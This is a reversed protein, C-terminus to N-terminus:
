SRWSSVTAKGGSERYQTRHRSSSGQVVGVNGCVADAEMAEGGAFTRENQEDVAERFKRVGPFFLEAFESFVVEDNGRIKAAEVQRVLGGSEVGVADGNQEFINACEGVMKAVAFFENQNGMVPAARKGPDESDDIGVVEFFEDDEVARMGSDKSFKEGAIGILLAGTM